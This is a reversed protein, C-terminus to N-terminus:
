KVLDRTQEGEDLAAVHMEIAEELRAVTEIVFRGTAVCGPLSPIYASFNNGTWGTFEVYALRGAVNRRMPPRKGKRRNCPGCLTRLNEMGDDGGLAKPWVHDVQLDRWDGCIVCRYSDRKLVHERREKEPLPVVKLGHQELHAYLREIDETTLESLNIGGEPWPSESM